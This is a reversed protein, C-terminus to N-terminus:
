MLGAGADAAAGVIKAMQFKTRPVSNERNQRRADINTFDIGVNTRLSEMEQQSRNQNRGELARKEMIVENVSTGQVGNEVASTFALAEASRGELVSDLGAQILSRQDQVYRQATSMNENTAGVRAAMSNKAHAENQERVREQEGIVAAGVKGMAMMTPDCM